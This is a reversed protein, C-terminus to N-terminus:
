FYIFSFYYFILFYKLFVLPHGSWWRQGLSPKLWGLGALKPHGFGGGHGKPTTQGGGLGLFFFFFDNAMQPPQVVGLPNGAVRKKRLFFFKTVLPVLSV